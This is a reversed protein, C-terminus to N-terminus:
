EAASGVAAKFAADDLAGDSGDFAVLGDDVDAQLAFAAHGQAFEGHGALRVAQRDAIFDFDIDVTDFVGVAFRHEAAVAGAAFGGPVLKFVFEAFALADFAHDEAADLAAEGDVEVAGNGEQGTRLDIDTRNAVHLRQHVHRLRELDQLHVTAAAVDDDRAAGNEFFGAGFLTRAQDLVQGFALDDVADDLVDGIVTREYVEAADVAQEMDGVHAVLADVVRVFHDGDAVGHLDLDDADVLVGLADAQAHLLQFRIRPFADGGLVRDAGLQAASDGVDGFVAGEHLQLRADFAAQVSHGLSNFRDTVPYLAQLLLDDGITAHTPVPVVARLQFGLEATPDLAVYNGGQRLQALVVDPPREPVLSAAESAAVVLPTGDAKLVALEQADSEERLEALLLTSPPGPTEGLQGALRVTQKLVERMRLDLATRSLELADELAKEVRVDFWSDISRAIFQVSFYYVVSVPAVSILSFLVFLRLTLRSGPEDNRVQRYLDWLNRGILFALLVFGLASGVLLWSYLEGFRASNGTAEGMLALAVLLVALLAANVLLGRVAIRRMSM